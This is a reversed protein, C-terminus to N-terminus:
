CLATHGLVLRGVTGSTQLGMRHRHRLAAPPPQAGASFSGAHCAQPLQEAEEWPGTGERGWAAGLPQLTCVWCEPGALPVWASVRPRSCPPGVPGAGAQQQGRGPFHEDQGLAWHRSQDTQTQGPFPQCPSVKSVLSPGELAFAGQLLVSSARRGGPHRARTNGCPWRATDWTCRLRAAERSLGPQRPPWLTRDAPLLGLGSSM